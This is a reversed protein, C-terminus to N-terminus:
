KKKKHPEKTTNIVYSYGGSEKIIYEPHQLLEESFDKLKKIFYNYQNCWQIYLKYFQDKRIRNDSKFIKDIIGNYNNLFSKHSENSIRYSVIISNSESNNGM